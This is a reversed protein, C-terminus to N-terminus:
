DTDPTTSRQHLHVARYVSCLWHRLCVDKALVYESGITVYGVNGAEQEEDNFANDVVESDVKVRRNLFEM